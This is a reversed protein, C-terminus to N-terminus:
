TPSTATAPGAPVLPPTRTLVPPFLLRPHHLLHLLLLLLLRLHLRLHHHHLLHLLDQGRHALRAPDPVSSPWHRPELLIAEAAFDTQPGAPVSASPVTGANPTPLHTRPLFAPSKVSQTSTRTCTSWGM